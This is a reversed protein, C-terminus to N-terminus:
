FVIIKKTRKLMKKKLLPRNLKPLLPVKTLLERQLVWTNGL